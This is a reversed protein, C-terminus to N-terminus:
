SGLVSAALDKVFARRGFRESSYIGQRLGASLARVRAGLPGAQHVHVRAAHRDGVSSWYASARDLQGRDFSPSPQASAFLASRQRCVRAFTAQERHLLAVKERARPAGLSLRGLPTGQRDRAGFLQADHQRYAALPEDLLVARGLSHALACIWRDHSLPAGYSYTSEGRHDFPVVDLLDRRFVLTFGFHNAWPDGSLPEVVRADEIGQSHTSVVRGGSDMLDVAHASLVADNEVMARVAAALKGPYWRDDQDCFAVYRSSAMAAGSLFNDSFGLRQKNRVIRIPVASSRRMREVRDLTGDTSGDDCVIIEDPPLSQEVVTTLQETIYREGNFTGMVVTVSNAGYKSGPGTPSM